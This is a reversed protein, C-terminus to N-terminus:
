KSKIIFLELIVGINVKPVSGGVNIQAEMHKDSVTTESYIVPDQTSHYNSCTQSPAVDCITFASTDLSHPAQASFSEVSHTEMESTSVSGGLDNNIGYSTLFKDGNQVDM